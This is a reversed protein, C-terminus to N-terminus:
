LFHEALIKDPSGCIARSAQMGSMVAGEVCTSNLGTRLYCGALVLNAFATEDSRLRFPLSGASSGPCCESPAINARIYQAQLRQRGDGNASDWLVCWDFAAGPTTAKPWIATGFADLWDGMSVTLEARARAMVDGASAPEAFLRTKYTGCLYHVSLPPAPEDRWDEAHLTQSMDAWVDLMKAGAVTAPAGEWGLAAMSDRSWLQLAQTPVLGIQESMRRLRGDAELLEDCPGPDSNLKKYAGLSVALVVKDDAAITVTEHGAPPESEWPSEFDVGKAKLQEGDRLQEWFPESPWCIFGNLRFTPVYDADKPQAQCAFHIAAVRKKTPDLEIRELKRFFSFAVGNQKLVEYLPAVVVEGMGARMKYAVAGRYTCVIRLLVCLATAADVSPSEPDGGDYWFCTDYLARVVRSQDVVTASAGHRKLWARFEVDGLSDGGKGTLLLDVFLGRLVAGGVDLADGILRTAPSTSFHGAADRAIARRLCNMAWDVGPFHSEAVAPAARALTEASLRVVEVIDHLGSLWGEAIKDCIAGDINGIDLAAGLHEQAAAEVAVTAPADGPAIQGILLKLLNGLEVVLDAVSLAVNGDGPEAPNGPWTIPVFRQQGDELWGIPTDDVSAFGSKWDTLPNDPGRQWQKYVEKLMAFANDYCGFWLHLGHEEIRGREDRGTACKGGLRWGLQYVTVKHRQRLEPTKTLEYAATLGAMGGGIIVINRAM